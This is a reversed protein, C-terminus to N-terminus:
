AILLHEYDEAISRSGRRDMSPKAPATQSSELMSANPTGTPKSAQESKSSDKDFKQSSELKDLSDNISGVSSRRENLLSMSRDFSDQEISLSASFPDSEKYILENWSPRRETRPPASQKEISKDM